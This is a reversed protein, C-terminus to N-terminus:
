KKHLVIHRNTILPDQLKSTDQWLIEVLFGEFLQDDRLDSLGCIPESKYHSQEILKQFGRSNLTPLKDGKPTPIKSLINLTLAQDRAVGEILPLLTPISLTYKGDIHASLADEIIPKRDKFVPNKQWHRVMHKLQAYDDASFYMCFMEDLATPNEPLKHIAGLILKLPVDRMSPFYFWGAQKFARREKEDLQRWRQAELKIFEATRLISSTIDLASLYWQSMKVTETISDLLRQSLILEQAVYPYIQSALIKQQEEFHKALIALPQNLVMRFQETLSQALAKRLQNFQSTFPKMAAERLQKWREGQQRLIEWQEQVVKDGKPTLTYKGAKKVVFGNVTLLRLARRITTKDVRLQEALARQTNVPKRKLTMLILLQLTNLDM